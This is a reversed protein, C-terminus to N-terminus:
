AKQPSMKLEGPQRLGLQDAYKSWSLLGAVGRAKSFVNLFRSRDIEDLDCYGVLCPDNTKLHKLLELDDSCVLIEWDGENILVPFRNSKAEGAARNAELKDIAGKM